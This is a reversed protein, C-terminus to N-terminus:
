HGTSRESLLRRLQRTHRIPHMVAHELMADICYPPGWRSVHAPAYAREETLGALPESWAELVRELYEEARSPLDEPAPREDAIREPLELQECIWNLYRAACGLVHALLAEMSACSPDDTSPLEVGREAAERWIKLFGRLHIEHLAKLAAAGSYIPSSEAGPVTM